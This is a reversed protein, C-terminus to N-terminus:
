KYVMYYIIIYTSALPKLRHNCIHVAFKQKGGCSYMLDLLTSSKMFYRGSVYCYNSERYSQVVDRRRKFVGCRYYSCVACSRNKCTIPTFIFWDNATYFLRSQCRQYIVSVLCASYKSWSCNEFLYM